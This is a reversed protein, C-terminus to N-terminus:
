GVLTGISQAQAPSELFIHLMEYFHGLLNQLGGGL